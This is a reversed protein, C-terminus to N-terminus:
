LISNVETKGRSKGQATKLTRQLDRGSLNRERESGEFRYLSVTGRRLDEIQATATRKASKFVWRTKLRRSPWDTDKAEEAKAKRGKNRVDEAQDRESRISSRPLGNTAEAELANERSLLHDLRM